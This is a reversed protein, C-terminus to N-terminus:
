KEPTEKRNTVKFVVQLLQAIGALAFLIPAIAMADTLIIAPQFLTTTPVGQCSSSLAQRVFYGSHGYGRSNERLA